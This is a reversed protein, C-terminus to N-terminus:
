VRGSAVALVLRGCDRRAVVGGPLAVEGQGHWDTVLAELAHVHTQALDGAPAGARLAARHLVRTRLADPEAALSDTDLVVAAATASADGAVCRDWAQRALQDLLDADARALRATRALAAVPDRGLADALAALVHERVASRPVPGGDARRWPGDVANSPDTEFALGLVDCTAHTDARRVTLLPRWYRDRVPAMGALARTGGGRGAALLVTEAQDDATHGLLVAAAGAHRSAAELEAYRTERAATESTRGPVSARRVLVPDLELGRCVAAARDAVDASEDRLGHDVVVAGARVGLRPAVFAVQSALARSDPGGSCAVLVLDGTALDGVDLRQALQTRVASRVRAVAPHPGTM